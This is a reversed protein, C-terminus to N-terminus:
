VSAGQLLCFRPRSITLHGRSVAIAMLRRTNTISSRTLAALMASTSSLMRHCVGMAGTTTSPKPAIILQQESVRPARWSDYKIALHAELCGTTAFTWCSGCHGQNKVESIVGKARWDVHAPLDQAKPGARTKLPGTASCDQPAMLVARHFEQDTMDSFQNLGRQWSHSFDANHKQIRELSAHFNQFREEEEEPTMAGAIEDLDGLDEDVANHQAKAELGIMSLIKNYFQQSVMSYGSTIAIDLFYSNKDDPAHYGTLVVQTRVEEKQAAGDVEFGLDQTVKTELTLQCLEPNEQADCIKNPETAIEGKLFTM